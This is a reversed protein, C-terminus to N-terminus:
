GPPQLGPNMKEKVDRLTRTIVEVLSEADARTMVFVGRPMFATSTGIEDVFAIRIVEPNANVYFKNVLVSPQNFAAVVQEATLSTVGTGIDKSM